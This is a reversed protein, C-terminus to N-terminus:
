SGGPRYLKPPAHPDPVALLIQKITRRGIRIKDLCSAFFMVLHTHEACLGSNEDAIVFPCPPYDCKKPKEGNAGQQTQGM